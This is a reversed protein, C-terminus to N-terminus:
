EEAANGTSSPLERRPEFVLSDIFNSLREADERYFERPITLEADGNRLPFTYKRGQTRRESSVVAPDNGNTPSGKGNAPTTQRPRRARVRLTPPRGPDELYESYAAIAKAIRQMYARRSEPKYKTGTANAFRTELEDLDLNLVDVSGYIDGYVASFVQNVASEWPKIATPPAYKKDILFETFSLLGDVTGKSADSM